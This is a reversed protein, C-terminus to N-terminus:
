VYPVPNRTPTTFFAALADRAWTRLTARKRRNGGKSLLSEIRRGIVCLSVDSQAEMITLGNREVTWTDGTRLVIDQTDDEQTIWVTGRAVRLTAGQVDPLSVTERTKLEVISGYDFCAM